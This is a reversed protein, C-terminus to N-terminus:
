RTDVKVLFNSLIRETPFEDKAMHPVQLPLEKLFTAAQRLGPHREKEVDDGNTVRAVNGRTEGM